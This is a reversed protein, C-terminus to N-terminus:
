YVKNNNYINCVAIPNSYEVTRQAALAAHEARTAEYAAFHRAKAYAVEPLDQPLNTAAVRFGHLPDAVYQVTQLVGNSDIYSYGGRTVGDLTKTESKASTPTAYGYVYQGLVDQAHYLSQVPHSYPTIGITVGYPYGM